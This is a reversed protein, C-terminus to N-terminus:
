LLCVAISRNFRGIPYPLSVQQNLARTLALAEIPTNPQAGGNALDVANGPGSDPLYPKIIVKGGAPLRLVRGLIYSHIKCVLFLTHAIYKRDQSIQLDQCKKFHKSEVKLTFSSHTTSRSQLRVVKM